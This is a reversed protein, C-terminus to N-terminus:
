SPQTGLEHLMLRYLFKANREAQARSTIGYAPRVEANSAAFEETEPPFQVRGMEQTQGDVYEVVVADYAM